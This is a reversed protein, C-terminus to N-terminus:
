KLKEAYVLGRLTVLEAKIRRNEEELKAICKDKSEIVVDKSNSTKDFKARKNYVSCELVKDPCNEYGTFLLGICAEGDSIYEHLEINREKLYKLFINKAEKKNM